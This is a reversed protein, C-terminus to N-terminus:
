IRDVMTRQSAGAPRLTVPRAFGAATVSRGYRCRLTPGPRNEPSLVILHGFLFGLRLVDRTAIDHGATSERRGRRGFFFEECLHLRVRRVIVADGFDRGLQRCLDPGRDLSLLSALM